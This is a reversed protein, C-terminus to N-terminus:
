YICKLDMEPIVKKFLWLRFFSCFNSLVTSNRRVVVMFFSWLIHLLFKKTYSGIFVVIEKLPKIYTFKLGGLSVVEM